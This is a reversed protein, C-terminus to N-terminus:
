GDWRKDSLKGTASMMVQVGKWRHGCQGCGWNESKPALGSLEFDPTRGDLDLYEGVDVFGYVV